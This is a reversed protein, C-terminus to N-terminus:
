NVRKLKMIESNTFASTGDAIVLSDGDYKQLIWNGYIATPGQIFMLKDSIEYKFSTIEPDIHYDLKYECLGSSETYFIINITGRTGVKGNTLYLIEGKWETQKLESASFVYKTEEIRNDDDSCGILLIYIYISLLTRLTKM